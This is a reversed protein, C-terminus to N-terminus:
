MICRHIFLMTQCKNYLAFIIRCYPSDHVMPSCSFRLLKSSIAIFNAQFSQHIAGTGHGRVRTFFANDMIDLPRFPAGEEPPFASPPAGRSKPAWGGIQPTLPLPIALQNFLLYINLIIIIISVICIYIYM